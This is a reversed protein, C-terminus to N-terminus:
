MFYIKDMGSCAQEIAQKGSSESEKSMLCLRYTFSTFFFTTQEIILLALNSPMTFPILVSFSNSVWDSGEM